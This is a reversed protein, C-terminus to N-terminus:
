FFKFGMGNGWRKQALSCLCLIPLLINSRSKPQWLSIYWLSLIIIINPTKQNKKKKEEANLKQQGFQYITLHYSTLGPQAPSETVSNIQQLIDPEESNQLEASSAKM